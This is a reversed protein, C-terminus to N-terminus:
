DPLDAKVVKGSPNRPLAELFVIFHPIKFSALRAHCHRRVERETLAPDSPVVFARILEGLSERVGTAPTGKVAAERVMDHAMLVAEVEAAYVNEGGVIIMDKQRGKIFFYGDEDVMALDGTHFWERGDRVSIAQALKEDDNFYGPIINERAFLLEGVTGAPAQEGAEDVVIAEVFPLLKGISDPREEADEGRLVHTMSTTETLGFFNRLDIEPLHQQLRRITSVPMMSGAYAMLRLSSYDHEDLDPLAAIRQFITPISLFTTIREEEVLRMLKDPTTDATIVVPSKQYAAMPLMSYLATCHFMPNVLLHVDSPSFRQANVAAMVNFVLDCHRMMAGKPAATTGSTHMIISVAEPALPPRPAPGDAALLEAYPRLGESEEEAEVAFVARPPAATAAKLPTAENARRVILVQPKVNAFITALNDEKLWLNLPVVVGGLRVVAWYILYYELCNPLYVAVHPSETGAAEALGAALREVLENAAAFTLRREGDVAALRGPALAAAEDWMDRTTQITPKRIPRPTQGTLEVLAPEIQDVVYRNGLENPHNRDRWACRNSIIDVQMNRVYPCGHEAAIRAEETRFAIARDDTGYVKPIMKGDAGRHDGFVGVVVVKAGGAQIREICYELDAAWDTYPREDRWWDNAGYELLVIDPALALVDTELRERAEVFSEGGAGQNVFELDRFRDQLIDSFRGDHGGCTTLSDGFCIIKM